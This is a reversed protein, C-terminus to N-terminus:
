EAETQKPIYYEKPINFTEEKYNNAKYIYDAKHIYDAVFMWYTKFFCEQAWSPKNYVWTNNKDGGESFRRSILSILREVVDRVLVGKRLAREKIEEITGTEM